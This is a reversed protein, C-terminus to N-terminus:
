PSSERLLVSELALAAAQSFLHAMPVKAKPMPNQVDLYFCHNASFLIFRHAPSNDKKMDAPLSNEHNEQLNLIVSTQGALERMMDVIALRLSRVSQGKAMLRRIMWTVPKLKETHALTFPEYPEVRPLSKFIANMGSFSYVGNLNLGANKIEMETSELKEQYGPLQYLSHVLARLRAIRMASLRDGVFSLHSESAMLAIEAEEIRGELGDALATFGTIIAGWNLGNVWHEAQHIKKVVSLADPIRASLLHLALCGFFAFRGFQMPINHQYQQDITQHFLEQCELHKGQSLATWARLLLITSQYDKNLTLASLAQVQVLLDTFEAIKEFSVLALVKTFLLDASHWQLEEELRDAHRITEEFTAHDIQQIAVRARLVLLQVFAPDRTAATGMASRMADELLNICEAFIGDGFFVMGALGRTGRHIAFPLNHNKGMTILSDYCERAATMQLRHHHHAALLELGLARLLTPGHSFLFTDAQTFDAEFRLRDGEQLATHLRAAQALAKLLPSAQPHDLVASAHQRAHAEDFTRGSPWAHHWALAAHVLHRVEPRVPDIALSHLLKEALVSAADGDFQELLHRLLLVSRAVCKGNISLTASPHSLRLLEALSITWTGQFFDAYM